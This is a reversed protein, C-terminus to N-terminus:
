KSKHEGLIVHLTEANPVMTHVLLSRQTQGSCPCPGSGTKTQTLDKGCVLRPALINPLHVCTYSDATLQGGPRAPHLDALIFLPLSLLKSISPPSFLRETILPSFSLEVIGTSMLILVNLVNLLSSSYESTFFLLKYTLCNPPMKDADSALSMM